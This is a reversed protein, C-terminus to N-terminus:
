SILNELKDLAANASQNSRNIKSLLNNIFGKFKEYIKTLWNENMRSERQVGLQSKIYTVTKNAELAEEVLRKMQPSVRSNLWEFAEKYKLNTRDYGKRKITILLNKARLFTDSTEGLEASLKDLMDRFKVDLETFRKELNQIEERLRDLQDSLAAYEEIERVLEPDSIDLERLKQREESILRKLLIELKSEKKVEKEKEPLLKQIRIKLIGKGNVTPLGYDDKGIEKVTVKHNKFRGTLIVDGIEIPVEIM